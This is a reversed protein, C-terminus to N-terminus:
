QGQGTTGNLLAPLLHKWHRADGSTGHGRTETTAPIEYYRGNKIRKIERQMIGLEIPNREDDAANIALTRATIKELHPSPDYNRAANYAYIYDNADAAFRAALRDKVIKDARAQDPAQKHLALTGGGTALSFFAAALKFSPPQETYNGNNFAPDAMIMEILMRRLIWNRGAMATPQSGMPVLTEMMDPYKTVWIWAHMGGMSQGIILKLRRIGLHETVLRYQGTVMDDYTHKPFNMRLGNSPKSSRGAGISDPLILFYKSADLPQGPGFLEGGFNKGLMNNSSGSSGHLVLVAENKPDGITQYHLKLQPLVEGSQFRFDKVIFDGRQPQPQALSVTATSALVALGLSAGFGLSIRM